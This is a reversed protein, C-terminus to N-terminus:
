QLRKQIDSLLSKAISGWSRWLKGGMSANATWLNEGTTADMVYLHWHQTQMNGAATIGTGYVTQGLATASASSVVVPVSDSPSLVLVLDAKGRDTVVQWRNWTKIQRYLDDGFRATGSDNVLMVTKAAIVKDPLPAYTKKQAVAAVGCLLLLGLHTFCIQIRM